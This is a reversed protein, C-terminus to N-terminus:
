LRCVLRRGDANSRCAGASLEREGCEEGMAGQELLAFRVRLGAEASGWDVAGNRGSVEFVVRDDSRLRLRLVEVIGGLSENARFTFHRGGPARVWTGADGTSGGPFAADILVTGTADELVFRAGSVGPRLAVGPALQVIGRASIEDDGPPTGIGSIRVRPQQIAQGNTCADCENGVGDADLDDCQRGPIDPCLDPLEVRRIRSSLGDALLLAGDPAIALGKPAMHASLAPRGDNNFCCEGTGAFTNIIGERDIVRVRWGSSLYLNGASDAVLDGAAIQADVAPGGDGSFGVVGTGAITDIIGDPRVMRIRGGDAIYVNGARDTTVRTPSMLRAETAPGGDGSFGQEGTGAFTHIIGFRTVLRVRFRDPTCIYVIGDAGIAIGEPYRIAADLAPVGDGSQAGITRGAFPLIIGETTLRRVAHGNRDSILLDGGPMLALSSTNAVGAETGPGGNGTSHNSGTGAVTRIIGDADVHRVWWTDAIYFGGHRDPLIDAPRQLQADVAPGGDGGHVVRGNGALTHIIGDPDIYRVQRRDNDYFYVTGDEAAVLGGSVDVSAESAPIGDEPSGYRWVGAIRRLTGDPDIRWLLSQGSVYVGDPSLAVGFPRHFAVETAPLGDASLEFTRGGGGITTIVGDVDVVRIRANLTDAIYVNGVADTRVIHPADLQAEVAPGGDGSFGPVGTGAFPEIIGDPRIRRVRDHSPESVYLNGAADFALGDPRLNAATAPGWDGGSGEEGTGAVTTIIGDTDVRRIRRNTSDSIYLNGLPDFVLNRPAIEAEIALGGDGSHSRGGGNGAVITAMGTRRDIARVTDSGHDAIFVHDGRVAMGWGWVAVSSGPGRGPGGAVTSIEGSLAGVSAPLAALFAVFAGMVHPVTTRGPM